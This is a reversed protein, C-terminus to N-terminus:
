LGWFGGCRYVGVRLWGLWWFFGVFLFCSGLGM